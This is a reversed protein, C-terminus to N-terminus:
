EWKFSKIYNDKNIDGLVQVRFYRPQPNEIEISPIKLLNKALEEDKITKKKSSITNIFQRLSANGIAGLANSISQSLKGYIKIDAFNELISYTGKLYLSLNKGKSLIELNDVQGNKLEFTGSIKEFEGTRYPTLIQILNNLSLGIIGNKILNGARLLYELSGLKPMKGQNISFDVKSNINKIGDPTNLNKASLDISGNMKGFIHNQLKLFQSSLLNADCDDMRASLDLKTSKVSYMGGANIKGKAIDVVINKFNLINNNYNFEGKLNQALISDWNVEGVNFTGNKVTIDEPKIQIQQKTEIDSKIKSDPLSAIIDDINIKRSKIDVKEVSYPPILKNLAKLFVRLDNQKNKAFVEAEIFDNTLNVKINNIQTDYLPIDLDSLEVKGIAKPNNLTGNINLNCEFNGQKLLSKKFVLNLLRVNIPVETTIRFNNYYIEGKKQIVQGSVKLAQIPNIKNNQNKIFKILKLNDITAVNQKVDIKGEIQRRFIGDNINAGGFQIDSEIPIDTHFSISYDDSNGRFNGKLPVEGKIKVPYTLYPNIINDAITENLITSFDAELVKSSYLNKVKANLYVPMSNYNLSFGDLKISDNKFVIQGTKLNSSVPNVTPLITNIKDLNINQLNITLDGLPHTMFNNVIGKIKFFGQYFGVDFNDFILRNNNIKIIGSNFKINKTNDNNLGLIYGDNKMTSFNIKDLTMYFESKLSMKSYFNFNSLYSLFLQEKKGLFSAKKLEKILDCFAIKNSFISSKVVFEKNSIIKELSDKSSFEVNFKSNNIFFELLGKQTKGFDFIGNLKEVGLKNSLIVKNNKFKITGSPTLSNIFDKDEYNKIVGKLNILTEAEGSVAAINKTFKKYPEGISSNNLITLLENTTINNIKTQLNVEGKTNGVGTLLFDAQNLKGKIEKFILNRNDFLLECNGKSLKASLGEMQAQANYAKFNGFIQADEITGQTKIDINGYGSVEMIPLPGINFGIIQQIPVLYIRAFALDVRPTSKVSYKGYLSDDLNSVGDIIVYQDDPAYVRTYVRMKDKMFYLNVDNQRFPKPANPIHVNSVKLNGTMNLPFLETNINGDLVGYFNSKKLAPIGQPRYYILNDPLLYLFNNIETNKFLSEIKVSPNKSFPKVIQGKSQLFLNNSSIQLSNILFTNKDAGFSMQALIKEKYPVIIKKDNLTIRFGSVEADIKQNKSDFNDETQIRLNLNGETKNIDESIYNKFVDSLIYLNFHSLNVDLDLNDSNFNNFPYKSNINTKITSIQTKGLHKTSLIGNQNISLTKYKKSVYIENKDLLLNFEANTDFEDVFTCELFDIKSELRVIDIKNNKFRSFDRKKLSNLFDIEGKKDRKINITIKKANLAKFKAKKFILDLPKFNMDFKEVSVFKKTKDNNYINILEIRSVINLHNDFTTKPNILEIRLGLFDSLNNEILSYSYKNKVFVVASVLFLLLVMSTIIIKKIISITINKKSM